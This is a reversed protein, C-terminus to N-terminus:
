SRRTPESIHILSLLYVILYPNQANVEMELHTTSDNQTSNSASKDVEFRVVSPSHHPGPHLEGVARQVDVEMDVQDTSDNMGTSDNTSDICHNTSASEMGILGTSDNLNNLEDSAIRPVTSNAELLQSSVVSPLDSGDRGDNM